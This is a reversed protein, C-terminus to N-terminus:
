HFFVSFNVKDNKKPSKRWWIKWKDFEFMRARPLIQHCLDGLFHCLESKQTKESVFLKKIYFCLQRDWFTQGTRPTIKKIRCIQLSTTKEATNKLFVPRQWIKIKGKKWVSKTMTEHGRNIKPSAGKRDWNM